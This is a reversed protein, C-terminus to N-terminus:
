NSTGSDCSSYSRCGEDAICANPTLWNPAPMAGSAVPANLLGDDTSETQVPVARQKHRTAASAPAVAFAAIIMGVAAFRISRM